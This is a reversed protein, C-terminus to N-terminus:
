DEAISLHSISHCHINILSEAIDTGYGCSRRFSEVLRYLFIGDDHKSEDSLLTSEYESLRKVQQDLITRADGISDPNPKRVSEILNRFAEMFPKVSDLPLETTDMASIGYGDRVLACINYVHDGMRELSRAIHAYENAIRRTLGIAHSVTSYELSLGVQRDVLLRLGDIEGEIDDIDDLIDVDGGTLVTVLDDLLGSIQIYMRNISVRLPIESPKLMSAIIITHEGERVVELGRTIRLLLRLTKRVRRPIQKNSTLTIRECGAVYAGVLHDM